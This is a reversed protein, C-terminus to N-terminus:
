ASPEPPPAERRLNEVYRKEAETLEAAEILDPRNKLTIALAQERQWKLINAHHGSLLVEPAELGRRERTHFVQDNRRNFQQRHRRYGERTWAGVRDCPRNATSRGRRDHDRERGDYWV